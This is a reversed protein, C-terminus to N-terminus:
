NMQSVSYFSGSAALQQPSNEDPTALPTARPSSAPTPIRPLGRHRSLPPVGDVDLKGRFEFAVNALKGLLIPVELRIDLRDDGLQLRPLGWPRM